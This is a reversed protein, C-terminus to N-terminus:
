RRLRLSNLVVSISSFAMAASAWMPNLLLGTVPFLVGAAIPIGLTNYVFAWFLNQRIIRVTRRSLEIAKPLLMLDSTTLTVMAVDMAIDTGKGMAISVDARALAQSDNIGDGVMAVFKGEAQLKQIYAEKEQPLVGSVVHEIGLESAVSAATSASDGTLMHVQIKMKGLLELARPTTDKVPDKLAAVALIGAQDGFYVVGKGESQWDSAKQLLSELSLPGGSGASIGAASTAAAAASTAAAAASAAASTASAAASTASAAAAPAAARVFNLNGARYKQGAYSFQIGKGPISEFHDLGVPTIGKEKLHQVVADALPHESKMEGSLFVSLETESPDKTWIITGVRPKGQTLTGTKDLVICNVKGMNELAYADKILIHNQAAKGIGVMLATPTALGLACPCAIVLVSVSALLALSFYTSGGIIMWLIFSIVSVVVVVPVFVASVKDVLKQVPAKSGQAERVMRVIHALVTGSGVQLAKITLSGHQNITGSLVNDGPHKEVAVPEGSIMSEDVYSLGDEVAGDVPIREGPRVVVRDGVQLMSIPMEKETLPIAKAPSSMMTAGSIAGAPTPMMTPGAATPCAESGGEVLVRATKPQLGMLGRIASGTSNKAREELLKGLLVFALIMGAAEYYVHAAIGRSEFFGPYFTVFVSYLFAVLTSLSVLTDMNLSRKRLMKWARIYFDRGSFCMIPLVLLLMIWNAPRWHMLGMAVVMLPIAFVWAVIVKLRLQKYHSRKADAQQEESNDEPVIVRYGVSQVGAQIRSPSIQEPDYEVLLTGAAFNVSAHAVGPLSQVKKEVNMACGACSMDLVTFTDKKM